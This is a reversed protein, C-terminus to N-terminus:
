HGRRSGRPKGRLQLELGALTAAQTVVSGDPTYKWAMYGDPISRFHWLPFLLMLRALGAAQTASM